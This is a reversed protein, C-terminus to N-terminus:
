DLNAAQQEIEQAVQDFLDAIDQPLREPDDNFGPLTLPATHRYALGEVLGYELGPGVAKEIWGAACFQCAEPSDVEVGLGMHNQAADGQTWMEPRLRILHSAMRLRKAIDELKERNM